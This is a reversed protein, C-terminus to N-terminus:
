RRLRIIEREQAGILASMAPATLGVALSAIESTSQPDFPMGINYLNRLPFLRKKQTRDLPTKYRKRVHRPEIRKLLLKQGTWDVERSAVDDWTSVFRGQELRKSWM